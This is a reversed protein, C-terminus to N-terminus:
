ESERRIRAGLARLKEDLGEYGRDLHYVRSIYTEGEAVLGALVLAASARLDSAMVEAGSLRSVGTVVAVNGDLHISAGMRRLEPVHTFRDKYITDTVTSRGKARCLLAMIQAQMDTPFGPYPTAAVETSDLKPGASATITDQDTVIKVGVEELKEVVADLHGPICNLLRVTGGTIAGAVLLTGAEIRDPIVALEAPSLEPKGEVLLSTTGAGEVRAGMKELFSGLAAIEPERAANEIVTVGEARSAAMMVNATAGVSPYALDVTAGRLREARAVVYGHELSIDAGLRALASLHMDVPRPGWACGGPLSVEATGFRALLPGLVYFSARMQKVLEYPAKVSAVETCDIELKGNSMSVKAGLREVMRKMTEVDRLRPVNTITCRGPVLLSAAMMPLVANKSGSVRVTGSVTTGGQVVMKEM